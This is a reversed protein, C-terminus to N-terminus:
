FVKLFDGLVDVPIDDSETVLAIDDQGRHRDLNGAVLDASGSADHLLDNGARTRGTGKLYIKPVLGFVYGIEGINEDDACVTGVASVAINICLCEGGSFRRPM